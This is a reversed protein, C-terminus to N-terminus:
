SHDEVIHLYCLVLLVYVQLNISIWLESMSGCVYTCVYKDLFAPSMYIGSGLYVCPNLM